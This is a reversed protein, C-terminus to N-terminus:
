NAVDFVVARYDTAFNSRSRPSSKSGIILDLGLM